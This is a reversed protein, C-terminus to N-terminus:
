PVLKLRYFQQPNNTATDNFQWTGNTGLVNTAVPLWGGPFLLNTTTELVYTFGSAGALNLMIDGNNDQALGTISPVAAQPLPIFTINVNQFNTGGFGDAITCVFQDDVNNSNCYVLTGSNNTVTVGNTSIGIAALSVIDGDPDSWNSSLASVSIKLPLGGFRKASFDTAAPPHNTVIQAFTNTAPLDNSDGSYIATVLNKGRPLSALNTSATQGASLIEADFAFDNTLFQIMGGANSPTMTATFNINDRYGSPNESSAIAISPFILNVTLVAVSSTTSGGSATAIVSYNGALALNLNSISLTCNTQSALPSNNFFWQFALPTCATAFVSFNATAGIVNTQSQPQSFIQPPTQDQVVITNTSYATNGSADAVSIFVINTGLPLGSHNTPIQSVTLAGSLDTALIFNTGTVDPMPATCNTGTALVLNTFSWLITPPTTDHVIVARTATNTNGNGDASTYTLTNTGVAGTNVTGSTAVSVSGACTDNATAGPDTFAGGLELFIPNGGNLTIVPATTDHVTLLANSSISAYLNTVLVTITHNPLHVNTLSFSTNTAGSVPTGDLSWQFNLPPTGTAAAVFTINNSGCEVTHNTPASTLTPPLVVTLAAVSSTAAGFVNTILLTYNAASNTTVSALTLVNSTAGSIGGGNSINIGNKRWQYVLPTSGGAVTSFVANGGSLITLSNTPQVSISPAFGPTLTVDDLGLYYPDDRAGFKLLTNVSNASVVFQLNTWGLKGVNTKDFLTNGNWSVSFENPTTDNKSYPNSSSNFWLSLLYFQGPLTPLTQSLYALSGLQGLAAYYSGTHPTLGSITSSGAVFNDGGGSGNLTWSTFDGTEFGGNQVLSQGVLVGVTISQVFQSTTNTVLLTANYIGNALNTAAPALTITLSTQTGSSLSGSTTSVNLWASTNNIGWNL